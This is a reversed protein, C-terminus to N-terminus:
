IHTATPPIGQFPNNRSTEALPQHSFVQVYDSVSSFSGYLGPKKQSGRGQDEIWVLKMPHQDNLNCWVLVTAVLVHTRLRPRTRSTPGLM